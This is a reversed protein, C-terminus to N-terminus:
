RDINQVNLSYLNFTQNLDEWIAGEHFFVSHVSTTGGGIM